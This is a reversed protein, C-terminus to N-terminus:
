CASPTSLDVSDHCLGTGLPPLTRMARPTCRPVPFLWTPNQLIGSLMLPPPLSLPERRSGAAAAPFGLAGWRGIGVELRSLHPDRLGAPIQSEGPCPRLLLMRGLSPDSVSPAAESAVLGGSPGPRLPFSAGPSSSAHGSARSSGPLSPRAASALPFFFLRLSARAARSLWRLRPGARARFLRARLPPRLPPSRHHPQARRIAPPRRSPGGM